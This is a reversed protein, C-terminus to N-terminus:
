PQVARRAAQVKKSPTCCGKLLLLQAIKKTRTLM